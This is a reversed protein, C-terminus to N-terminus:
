FDIRYFFIPLFGLQYEERIPSNSPDFEDPAYTLSLINENGFINVFDIAMQHTVKPRNVTYAFRIDTRFYDRFQESNYTDDEYIVERELESAALDVPGYRKGGSWTVKAGTSIRKNKKLIFEKNFLTNVIFNGNFDTDRLVDDSGKYKADYLSTTILFLYNNSFFKELTIEFGYNRGTGSNELSDPFFRSFGSGANLLSFSSPTTEVPVDYLRQYYTELKLKLNDSLMKTYSLVYHDSKIFKVDKNYPLPQGNADNQNSFFYLYPAIIQSHTGVGLSLSQRNPLEWQMGLRPEFARFEDNLSFYQAHIGAVINFTPTIKFKAQVFPQMLVANEGDTNWRLRWKYYDPSSETLNKISDLFNFFYYDTNIGTNLVVKKSLKRDFFISASLKQQNFNYHLMPTLSDLVYKSDSDVHRYIFDHDAEVEEHSFALTAKLFTNKNFSKKLSIGAVGMNSKFYQDRDNDGYINREPEEQKSIEMDSSSIGGIGFVSLTANKGVNFNLKFSLDQYKNVASTGIDVGLATFIGLTAYRYSFLYSSKKNENLPGEAFAEMGLIGFQGSFEHTQNNGNRLNLDFVGATSNGFQAPFAGTYFDSNSLVKNNLISVSGGTTGPINFHNPNPINIGELQWLVGQPSNGRIVIDNRSDDGGQVGAFNSAMRSPEGRSGPYRNTEEISFTRASVTAMENSAEGDRTASIVIEELNVASEELPINLIVEKASTVEINNLIAEKYGVSSIKFTHRGVPVNEIKFNGDLDAVAGLTKEADNLLICTAGILPYGSDTDTIKGRVTQTIEQATVLHSLYFFVLVFLLRINM